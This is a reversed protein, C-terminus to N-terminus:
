AADGAQVNLLVNIAFMLVGLGILTSGFAVIPEARPSGHLLTALSFLTILLGANYLVFHAKALRTQAARPWLRYVIGGLALGVWGLLNTHAHVPMQTFDHAAAMYIGLGVGLVFYIVAIRIMWISM